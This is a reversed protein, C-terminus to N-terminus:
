SPTCPSPSSGALHSPLIYFFAHPLPTASPPLVYPLLSMSDSDSTSTFSSTCPRHHLLITLPRPPCVLVTPPTTRFSPSLFPQLTPIFGPSPLPPALSPHPVIPSPTARDRVGLDYVPVASRSCPLKADDTNCKNPMHFTRCHSALSNSKLRRNRPHNRGSPVHITSSLMSTTDGHINASRALRARWNLAFFSVLHCSLMAM